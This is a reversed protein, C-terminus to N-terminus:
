NLKIAVAIILSGVLIAAAIINGSRRIANTNDPAPAAPEAESSTWLTQSLTLTRSLSGPEFISVLNDRLLQM